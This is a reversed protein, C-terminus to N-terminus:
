RKDCPPPLDRIGELFMSLVSVMKKTELCVMGLSLFIGIGVKDAVDIEGLSFSVVNAQYDAVVFEGVIAVGSGWFDAKEVELDVEVRDYRVGVFPGSLQCCVDDVIVEIVWHSVVLVHPHM